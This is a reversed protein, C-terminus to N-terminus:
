MGCWACLWVDEGSLVNQEGVSSCFEAHRVSCVSGESWRGIIIAVRARRVGVWLPYCACAVFSFSAMM